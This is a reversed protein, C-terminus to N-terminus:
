QPTCRECLGVRVTKGAKLDAWYSAGLAETNWRRGCQDCRYFGRRLRAVWWPFRRLRWGVIITINDRGKLIRVRPLVVGGLARALQWYLM